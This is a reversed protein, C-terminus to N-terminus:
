RDALAREFADWEEDTIGEIAMDDDSPVPRARQLADKPSVVTLHGPERPHEAVSVGFPYAEVASRITGPSRRGAGRGGIPASQAIPSCATPVSSFPM